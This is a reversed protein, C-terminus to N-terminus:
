GPRLTKTALYHFIKSCNEHSLFNKGLFSKCYLFRRPAKLAASLLTVQTPELNLELTQFKSFVEVRKQLYQFSTLILKSNKHFFSLGHINVYLTKSFLLM